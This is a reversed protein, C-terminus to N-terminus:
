SCCQHIRSDFYCPSHVVVRTPVTFYGISNGVQMNSPTVAITQQWLRLNSSWDRDREATHVGRMAAIIVVTVWMVRRGVWRQAGESWPLPARFIYFAPSKSKTAPKVFGRGEGDEDGGGDSRRRYQGCTTAVVLFEACIDAVAVTVLFCFGFSPLYLWREAKTAGVFAYLNGCPAFSLFLWIWGHLLEPKVVVCGYTLLTLVVSPFSVGVPPSATTTSGMRVSGNSSPLFARAGDIVMATVVAAVMFLCALLLLARTSWYSELLPVSDAGWDASLREPWCLVLFHELWLNSVNLRRLWVGHNAVGAAPTAIHAIRNANYFFVPAAGENRGVRWITLGTSGALLLAVRWLLRRLGNQSSDVASEVATNAQNGNHAGPGASYSTM